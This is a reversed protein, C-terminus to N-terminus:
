TDLVERLKHALVDPSYPKQLFAAPTGLWEQVDQASGTYGSMFLVKLGPLLETLRAALLNGRMGPMVVDTLLLQPPQAQARAIELAQEGHAAELVQYGLDRLVRATLVRLTPEDEVLLITEKGRRLLRRDGREPLSEAPGDARPLYVYFTTGSGLESNFWIYGGHQKVIGYCTALGLGTGNHQDKTTYFPEFIHAQIERPMGVGTDSVSLLAYAGSMAGAHSRAYVDDIQVDATAITLTGGDPMADRANVALNILVQEIQGPDARILGLHAAPQLMLTVEEGLLRRLLSEMGFILDNFSFISPAIVRKRAFSLLQNTLAAARDSARQIELLDSRAVHDAPLADLALGTYGTIATLLNNFDHAVGGALRGISEMKQAQLFQAELQRRETIDRSVIVFVHQGQRESASGSSEIWHWEGSADRIRCIAQVSGEALLQRWQRILMVRDEPHLLDLMVTGLLEEPDHGLMIRYSPSVYLYRGDQNLLSILDGTHETILRYLEQSALLAEQAHKRASIDRAIYSVGIPRGAINLIPSITLSVQLPTGDKHLQVTEFQRISEARDIRERVWDLEPLRDAPTILALVQGVAEAASYGYMREAGVNWSQILGDISTAVIADDSSDVISALLLRDAEARKHETIDSAIAGVGLLQGDATHVPYYSALWTRLQGPQLRSQGVFELNMVSTGTALINRFLPELTSALAPIIDALTRGLHAEIPLGNIAAMTQNIRVFRLDRDYFAFGVPASALLTDLLALAEDMRRAAERTEQYLRANDIALAARRGLEEAIALDDPRYQRDPRSLGFSLAGLLRGHAILPVSMVSTMGMARLIEAHRQDIATAVIDAPAVAARLVPQRTKIALAPASPLDPVVPYGLLEQALAHKHPDAAAVAVRQISLDPAIIEVGCWDALEAVALRAVNALTASYDLSMSLQGTAESLLALRRRATEAAAHAAQERALLQAGAEEIQKRRTIDRNIGVMGIPQGQTDRLVRVISEILIENGDRHPHAVDGRWIDHQRLALLSQADDADGLFRPPIVDAISKGIVDEAPWGYIVEAARNWSQICFRMDIVIVADSVHELLDQRTEGRLRAVDREYELEAVRARLRELEALLEADQAHTVTQPQDHSM